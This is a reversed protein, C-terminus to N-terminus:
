IFIFNINKGNGNPKQRQRGNPLRDDTQQPQEEEILLKLPRKEHEEANLKDFHNKGGSSKGM